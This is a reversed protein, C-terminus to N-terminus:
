RGFVIRVIPRLFARTRRFLTISRAFLYGKVLFYSKLIGSPFGISRSSLISRLLAVDARDKSENRRGKMQLVLAPSCFKVGMYWCHMRPDGVIDAISEVHFAEMENHCDIKVPLRPLRSPDGHYLFDIDRTERLGLLALISGGDICFAEEDLANEELWDRYLFLQRHFDPSARVGMRLLDLSNENFLVRALRLVEDDGDTCHISHNGICYHSRIREKIERLATLNCKDLLIARVTGQFPFCSSVKHAFGSDEGEQELWQHGLYAQKLLSAGALTSLIVDKRYVIEGVEKLCDIAFKDSAVSPFILALVLGNKIRCYEIAAEDLIESPCPKHGHSRGLFYAASPYSTSATDIQAVEVKRGMVIAAAVRHSGDFACWNGDVPVMPIESPDVDTLLRHFSTLFQDIGSKGSGDHENIELEPGTIRLAQEFYAYNRWRQACGALWLRAYLAKIAIDFRDPVLLLTADVSLLDVSTSGPLNRIRRWSRELASRVEPEDLQRGSILFKVETRNNSLYTISGREMVIRFDLKELMALYSTKKTGSEAHILILEIRPLGDLRGRLDGLECDTANLLLCRASKDGKTLLEEEWGLERLAAIESSFNEDSGICTFVNESVPCRKLVNQLRRGSIGLTSTHLSVIGGAGELSNYAQKM